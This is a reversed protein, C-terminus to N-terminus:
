GPSDNKVFPVVVLFRMPSITEDDIDGIGERSHEKANKNLMQQRDHSISGMRKLRSCFSSNHVQNHRSSCKRGPCKRRDCSASSELQQQGVSSDIDFLM